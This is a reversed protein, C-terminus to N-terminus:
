FFYTNTSIKCDSLTGGQWGALGFGQAVLYSFLIDAPCDRYAVIIIRPRTFLCVILDVILDWLLTVGCYPGM